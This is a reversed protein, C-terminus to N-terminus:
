TNIQIKAANVKIYEINSGRNPYYIKVRQMWYYFKWIIEIRIYFKLQFLNEDASNIGQTSHLEDAGLM